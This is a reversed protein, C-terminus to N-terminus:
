GRYCHWVGICTAIYRQAFQNLHYHGCARAMVQMLEVSASFFDHLQASSKEVNLRQRLDAKQTAIGDTGLAMDKISDTPVRLGGAIILTVKASVGQEDM